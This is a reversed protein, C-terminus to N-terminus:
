KNRLRPIDVKSTTEIIKRKGLAILANLAEEQLEEKTKEYPVINDNYLKFYSITKWLIRTIFNSINHKQNKLAILDDVKCLRATNMQFYLIIRADNCTNNILDFDSITINKRYITSTLLDSPLFSSLYFRFTDIFLRNSKMDRTTDHKIINQLRLIQEFDNSLEVNVISEKLMQKIKIQAEDNFKLLQKQKTM